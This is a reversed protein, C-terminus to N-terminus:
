FRLFIHIWLNKCFSFIAWCQYHGINDLEL